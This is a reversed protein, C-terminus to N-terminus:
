KKKVWRFLWARSTTWERKVTAVSIQLIEAIEETTLGSFFKLEVIKSKRPDLEALQNLAEDLAILDIDKVPASRDVNSLSVREAKGGRKGAARDRAHNM